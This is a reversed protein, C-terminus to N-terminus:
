ANKAEEEWAQELIPDFITSLSSALIAQDLAKLAGIAESLNLMLELERAVINM